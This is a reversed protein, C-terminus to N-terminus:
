LGMVALLVSALALLFQRGIYASLTPSLRMPGPDLPIVPPNYLNAAALFAGSAKANNHGSGM